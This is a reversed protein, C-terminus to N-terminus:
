AVASKGAGKLLAHIVSAPAPRHFLYGQALTCNLARLLDAQHVTEVGEATTAMGFAAALEIMARVLADAESNQTLDNIFARDIKLTDFRFRRLYSLSSYGAGFDDMALRVGMERLAELVGVTQETDNLLISETIEIELRNADLGSGALARAVTEILGPSAIQIASVNVAVGIRDPWGAAERCATTLVWAGIERILGIEEAVPIFVNPPVFEGGGRRWRLLAECCRITGAKMNMLPQYHLEFEGAALAGRLDIELRRREQIERDMGPEFVRHAGRGGSKARYLAIDANRMLAAADRAEPTSLAIGVSVGVVMVHGDIEYPRSLTDVIRRALRLAARPQSAASQVVAFEDGGLRGIAAADGAAARLRVAVDQLLRDGTPHGLTDNVAKFHDLDLCLAAVTGNARAKAIEEDIAENIVVRNSLGTLSDHRALYRIREHARQQDTIDRHVTVWGGNQRPQCSLAVIRGNALTLTREVHEGRAIREPIDELPADCRAIVHACHRIIEHFSTPGGAELGALRRFPTNAVVLEGGADYMAIGQPMNELADDLKDHEQKLRELTAERARNADEIESVMLATARELRARQQDFQTYAREVLICLQEVDLAGDERRCRALQSALISHVGIAKGRVHDGDDDPQAPRM